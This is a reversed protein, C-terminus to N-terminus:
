AAARWIEARADWSFRGWREGGLLVDREADAAGDPRCWVGSAPRVMSAIVSARTGDELEVRDRFRVRRRHEPRTMPM